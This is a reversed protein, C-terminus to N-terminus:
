EETPQEMRKVFEEETEGLQTAATEASIICENVLKILTEIRGETRGETVLEQVIDCM